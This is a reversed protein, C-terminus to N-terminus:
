STRVEEIWDRYCTVKSYSGINSKRMELDKMKSVRMMIKMRIKFEEM